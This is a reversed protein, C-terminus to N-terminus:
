VAVVSIKSGAVPRNEGPVRGGAPPRRGPRSWGGRRSGHQDDPPWTRGPTAVPRATTTSGSPVTCSMPDSPSRRAELVRERGEVRAAREDDAAGGVVVPQEGRGLDEVGPGPGEPGARRQLLTAVLQGPRRQASGPSRTTTAPPPSPTSTTSTSSPESGSPERGRPAPPRRERRHTDGPPRNSTSPPYSSCIRSTPAARLVGTAASLARHRGPDPDTRRRTRALDGRRRRARGRAHGPWRSPSGRRSARTSACRSRRSGCTTASSAASGPRGTAPAAGSTPSPGRPAPGIAASCCRRPTSTSASGACGPGTTPRAPSWRSGPGCRSTSACGARAPASRAARSGARHQDRAGLARRRRALPPPGAARRRRGRHPRRGRLHRQAHGLPGRRRRGAADGRARRDRTGGPRAERLQGAPDGGASWAPVRLSGVRPPGPVLGSRRRRPPGRGLPDAGPRRRSRPPRDAGRAPRPRPRRARRQGAGHRGRRCARGRGVERAPRDRRARVARRHRGHPRRRALGPVCTGAEDRTWGPAAVDRALVLPARVERRVTM